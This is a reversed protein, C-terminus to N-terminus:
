KWSRGLLWQSTGCALVLAAYALMTGDRGSLVLVALLAASGALFDLTFAAKWSGARASDALLVRAALSVLLAVGAAPALFGALHWFFDMPGM